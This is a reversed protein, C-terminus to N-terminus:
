KESIDFKSGKQSLLLIDTKVSQYPGYGLRTSRFHIKNPKIVYFTFGLLSNTNFFTVFLFSRFSFRVSVRCAYLPMSLCTGCAIKFKYMHFSRSEVAVVINYQM